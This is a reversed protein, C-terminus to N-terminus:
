PALCWRNRGEAKARYLAANADALLQAGSEQARPVRAAVGVSVTVTSGSRAAPHPLALVAVQAVMREAVATAGASDTDSLIAVLADNGYRALVDTARHLCGQVARVVVQLCADAAQRGFHDSYRKFEDVGLLLVGLGQQQRFASASAHALWDDLAHRSTIQLLGDTHGLAQLQANAQQLEQQARELAHDCQRSRAKLALNAQLLADNQATLGQYLRDVLQLPMQIGQEQLAQEREYAQAATTGQELAVLQRAMAQDMGLIHLGMWGNLFSAFSEAPTALLARVSWLDRLQQLFQHHIAAHASVHRTDVGASRMLTEEDAFHYEAYALLRQFIDRLVPEHVAPAPGQARLLARGLENFLDVLGGHQEDVAAQGTAFRQNWVFLEM